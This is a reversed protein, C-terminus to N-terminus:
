NAPTAPRWDVRLDALRAGVLEISEASIRGLSPEMALIETVFPTELNMVRAATADAAALDTSALVLWSGLRQRLDIPTGGLNSSPGNGEMGISMDVLALDPHAARALDLFLRGFGRPTPDGAHLRVRSTVAGDCGYRALPTIGVFNKLALTAYAWRHSKAVPVSIVRDARTVLSSVAVTHLSTTTPALIWETTDADLCALRVPRHYAASLRALEAPLERTGDLTLAGRWDFRPRQSGDGVTVERAGARLCEEVVAVVIDPKTCEGLRFPDYSRSAWPLTVMNPKVFVTEGEHVVRGMGGIAALAERTMEGLDRGRVAAVRAKAGGTGAAAAPSGAALGLLASTGLKLLERRTPTRAAHARYM